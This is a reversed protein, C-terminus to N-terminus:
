LNPAEHKDTGNTVIPMTNAKWTRLAEYRSLTEGLFTIFAEEPHLWQHLDARVHPHNSCAFRRSRNWTARTRKVLDSEHQQEM